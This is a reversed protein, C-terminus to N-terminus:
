TGVQHRTAPDVKDLYKLAAIPLAPVVSVMNSLISNKQIKVPNIGM